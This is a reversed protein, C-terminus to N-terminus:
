KFIMPVLSDAIVVAVPWAVLAGAGGRDQMARALGAALAFVLGQQACLLVWLAICVPMPLYAFERLLHIIWYFGGLNTVLGMWGGLAIAGSLTSRRTAEIVPVLAIFALPFVDFAPFSLVVLVGSLTALAVDRRADVVRRPLGRVAAVARRARSTM